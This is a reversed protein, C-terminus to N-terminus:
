CERPPFYEENKEIFAELCHSNTAKVGFNATKVVNKPPPDELQQSFAWNYIPIKSRLIHNTLLTILM